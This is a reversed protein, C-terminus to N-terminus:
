FTIIIMIMIIMIMLIIIIISNSNGILYFQKLSTYIYIRVCIWRHSDIDMHIQTALDDVLGSDGQDKWWWLGWHLATFVTLWQFLQFYEFMQWRPVCCAELASFGAYWYDSIDGWRLSCAPFLTSVPTAMIIICFRWPSSFQPDYSISPIYQIIM